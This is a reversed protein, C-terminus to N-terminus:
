YTIYGNLYSPRKIDKVPRSQVSVNNHGVSESANKKRSNEVEM